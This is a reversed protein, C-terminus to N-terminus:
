RLSRHGLGAGKPFQEVNGLNIDEYYYISVVPNFSFFRFLTTSTSLPTRLTLKLLVVSTTAPHTPPLQSLHPCHQRISAGWKLNM